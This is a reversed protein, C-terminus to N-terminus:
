ILNTTIEASIRMMLYWEIALKSTSWTKKGKEENGNNKKM